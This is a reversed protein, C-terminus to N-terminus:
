PFSSAPPWMERPVAARCGSSQQTPELKKNTPLNLFLLIFCIFRGMWGKWTWQPHITPSPAPGAGASYGAVFFCVCSRPACFREIRAGGGTRDRPRRAGDGGRGEGGGGPAGGGGGVRGAGGGVGGFVKQLQDIFCTKNVPGNRPLSQALGENTGCLSLIPRNLPAQSLFSPFNSNPRSM